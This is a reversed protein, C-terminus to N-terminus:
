ASAGSTSGKGSQKRQRLFSEVEQLLKEATDIDEREDFYGIGQIQVDKPSIVVNKLLGDIYLATNRKGGTMGCTDNHNMYWTPSVSQLEFEQEGITIKATRAMYKRYSRETLGKPRDPWNRSM